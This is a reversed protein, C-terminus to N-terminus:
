SPARPPVSECALERDELTQRDQLAIDDSERRGPVADAEEVCDDIGLETLDPDAVADFTSWEAEAVPVGCSADPDDKELGVSAADADGSVNDGLIVTVTDTCPESDADGLTVRDADALGETVALELREARVEAFGVFVGPPAAAEREAAM